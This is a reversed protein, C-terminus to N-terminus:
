DEIAIAFTPCYKAALRLAERHSEDPEEVLVRVLHASDDVEFLDPAETVCVGHGQCLDLDVKIRV